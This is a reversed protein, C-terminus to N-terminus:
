IVGPDNAPPITAKVVNSLADGLSVRVYYIGEYRFNAYDWVDFSFWGSFANAAKQVDDQFLLCNRFPHASGHQSKRLITLVLHKHPVRGLREFEKKSIIFRGSICFSAELSTFDPGAIRIGQGSMELLQRRNVPSVNPLKQKEM